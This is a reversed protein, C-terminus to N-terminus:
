GGVAAQRDVCLAGADQIHQDEAGAGVVRQQDDRPVPLFQAAVVATVGCHGLRRPARAWRDDGAGGGHDQRQQRQGGSIRVAVTTSENTAARPTLAKKKLWTNPNPPASVVKGSNANTNRTARPM